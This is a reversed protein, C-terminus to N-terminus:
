VGPVPRGPDVGPKGRARVRPDRGLPARRQRRPRGRRHHLRAERQPLPARRSPRPDMAAGMGFVRAVCTFSLTYSFPFSFHAHFSFVCLAFTQHWRTYSLVVEEIGPKLLGLVLEGSSGPLPNAIWSEKSDSTGTSSASSAEKDEGGKEESTGAVTTAYAAADAVSPPCTLPATGSCHDLIVQFILWESAATFPVKGCFLQFVIVGLGWCDAAASAPEDKLVEPSVYEPTGVFDKVGVPGGAGSAEPSTDLATGFDTLKLHGTAM